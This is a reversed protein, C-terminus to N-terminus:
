TRKGAEDTRPKENYRKLFEQKFRSYFDKPISGLLDTVAGWFKFSETPNMEYPTTGPSKDPITIAYGAIKDQDTWVMIQTGCTRLYWKGGHAAEFSRDFKEIHEPPMDELVCWEKKSLESFLTTAQKVIEDFKSM